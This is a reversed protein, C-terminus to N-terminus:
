RSNEDKGNRGQGKFDQAGQEKRRGNDMGEGGAVELVTRMLGRMVGSKPM